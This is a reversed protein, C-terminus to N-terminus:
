SLVQVFFWGIVFALLLSIGASFFCLAVFFSTGMRKRIVPGGDVVMRIIGITVLCITIVSLGGALTPDLM